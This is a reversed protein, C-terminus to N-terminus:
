AVMLSMLRNIKKFIKNLPITVCINFCIIPLGRGTKYLPKSNFDNSIICNSELHCENGDPWVAVIKAKIKQIINRKGFILFANIVMAIIIADVLTMTPAWKILSIKPPVSTAYREVINIEFFSASLFFSNVDSFSLNIGFLLRSIIELLM